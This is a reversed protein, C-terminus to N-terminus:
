GKRRYFDSCDKHHHHQEKLGLSIISRLMEEYKINQFEKKRVEALQEQIEESLLLRIKSNVKMKM